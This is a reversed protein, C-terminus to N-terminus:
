KNKITTKVILGTEFYRNWPQEHEIIEVKYEDDELNDKAWSTLENKICTAITGDKKGDIENWGFKDRYKDFTKHRVYFMYGLDELYRLGMFDYWQQSKGYIKNIMALPICTGLTNAATNWGAYANVKYLLHENKLLHFLNIDGGNAYAIDAVAVCKGISVLYKIHEVYEVLNRGVTYNLDTEGTKYYYISNYLHGAEAMDKLPINVMLVIDCNAYDTTFMGGAAMIQYKISESVPRDEYNPIINGNNCSNYRVFVLPKVNNIENITRALLTNGVADADPYMLAKLELNLNSIKERVIMQDKATLGYPASDDQPIILFDIIGDKVLDLSYLNMTTNIKRRALYDDVYHQYNNKKIFEKSEDYVKQQEDNLKAVSSLHDYFGTLYIERGCLAYYDPEESNSSGSPCRMILHYAYLKIKPNIKKIEKLVDLREKLTEITEYHLRSPVIGGYLISDLAIVAYNADICEKLLFEKMATLNGPIKYNGMLEKPIEVFNINKTMSALMNPYSYTCPREDLPIFVTKKM